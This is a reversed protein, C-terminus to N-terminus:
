KYVPWTRRLQHNRYRSLSCVERGLAGTGVLANTRRNRLSIGFSSSNPIYVPGDHMFIPCHDPLPIKPLAVPVSVAPLFCLGLAKGAWALPLLGEKRALGERCIGGKLSPAPSSGPVDLWCLLAEHPTKMTILVVLVATAFLRSGTQEDCM